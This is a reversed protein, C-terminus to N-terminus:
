DYLEIGTARYPREADPDFDFSLVVRQALTESKCKHRQTSLAHHSHFVVPLSPGDGMALHAHLPLTLFAGALPTFHYVAMSPNAVSARLQSVLTRGEHTLSVSPSFPM